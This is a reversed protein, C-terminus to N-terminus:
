SIRHDIGIPPAVGAAKFYAFLFAFWFNVSKLLIILFIKKKYLLQPCNSLFPEVWGLQRSLKKQVKAAAPLSQAFPFSPSLPM